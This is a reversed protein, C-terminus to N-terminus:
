LVRHHLLSSFTLASAFDVIISKSWTRVPLVIEGDAALRATTATVPMLLQNPGPTALRIMNLYLHEIYKFNEALTAALLAKALADAHHITQVVTRDHWIQAVDQRLQKENPLTRIHQWLAVFPHNSTSNDNKATSLGLLFKFNDKNAQKLMALSAIFPMMLPTVGPIDRLRARVREKRDESFLMEWPRNLVQRVRTHWALWLTKTVEPMQASLLHLLIEHLGHWQGHAAAEVAMHTMIGWKEPHDDYLKRVNLRSEVSFCGALYDSVAEYDETTAMRVANSDRLLGWRQIVDALGYGNDVATRLQSM